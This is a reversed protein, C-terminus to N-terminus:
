LINTNGTNRYWYIQRFKVKCQSPTDQFHIAESESEYHTLYIGSESSLCREAQYHRDVKARARWVRQGGRDNRGEVDWTSQWRQMELIIKLDVWLRQACSIYHKTKAERWCSRFGTSTVLLLLRHSFLPAEGVLTAIILKLGDVTMMCFSKHPSWVVLNVWRPFDLHANYM